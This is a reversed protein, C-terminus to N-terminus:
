TEMRFGGILRLKPWSVDSIKLMWVSSFIKVWECEILM